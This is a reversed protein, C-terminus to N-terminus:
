SSSPTPRPNRASTGRAAGRRTSPAEISGAGCIRSDRVRSSRMSGVTPPVVWGQTRSKYIQAQRQSEPTSTDPVNGTVVRLFQSPSFGISSAFGGVVAELQDGGLEAGSDDTLTGLTALLEEGTEPHRISSLQEHLHAKLKQVTAATIAKTFDEPDFPKGNFTLM